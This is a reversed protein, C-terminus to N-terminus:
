DETAPEPGTLTTRLQDLLATATDDDGAATAALLQGVRGSAVHV